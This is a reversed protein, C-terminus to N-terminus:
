TGSAELVTIEGIMGSEQHTASYYRYTGPVEFTHRYAQGPKISGSDFPAAGDPLTCRMPDPANAPDDTVTQSAQSQNIWEVTDGLRVTLRGPTFRNQPTMYVVAPSQDLVVWGAARAEEKQCVLVLPLASLVLLLM